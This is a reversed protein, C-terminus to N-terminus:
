AFNHAIYKNLNLVATKAVSYHQNFKGPQRAPVTSINIIRAQDSKQLFPFANKSFYVMTMFNFEFAELWDKDELSMFDGFETVGGVNNVLADLRGVGRVVDSFFKKVEESKTADFAGGYAKVGMKELEQRTKEVSEKKLGCVIVDAGEEAFARAIVRGIGRTGGSVLAVRNKLGLDM